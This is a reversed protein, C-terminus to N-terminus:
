RMAARLNRFSCLHSPLTFPRHDTNEVKGLEPQKVM